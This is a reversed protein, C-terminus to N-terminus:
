RLARWVDACIVCLGVIYSRGIKISTFRTNASFSSINVFTVILCHTDVSRFEHSISTSNLFPYNELTNSEVAPANSEM